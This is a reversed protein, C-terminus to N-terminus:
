HMLTATPGQSDVAFIGVGDSTPYRHGDPATVDVDVHHLYGAKCSRARDEDYADGYYSFCVVGDDECDEILEKLKRVTLM